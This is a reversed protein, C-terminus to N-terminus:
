RGSPGRSSALRKLNQVVATLEAEIQVRQRGRGRARGMGHRTKAEAFTHESRVRLKRSVQYGRTKQLGRVRNRATAVRV